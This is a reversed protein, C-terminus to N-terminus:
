WRDPTASRDPDVLRDRPPEELMGVLEGIGEGPRPVLQDVAVHPRDRAVESGSTGSSCSIQCSGTGATSARRQDVVVSMAESLPSSGPRPVRPRGLEHRSRTPMRRSRGRCRCARRLSRHDFGDTAGCFSQSTGVVGGLQSVTSAPEPSSDLGLKLPACAPCCAPTSPRGSRAPRSRQRYLLRCRLVSTVVHRNGNEGPRVSAVRSWSRHRLRELHELRGGVAEAVVHAGPVLSSSPRARQEHVPRAM